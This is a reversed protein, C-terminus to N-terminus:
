ARSWVTIYESAMQQLLGPHYNSEADETVLSVGAEDKNYYQPGEPQM